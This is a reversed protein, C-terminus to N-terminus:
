GPLVSGGRRVWSALLAFFCSLVSVTALLSRLRRCTACIGATACRDLLQRECRCSYAPQHTYSMNPASQLRADSFQAVGDRRSRPTPKTSGMIIYFTPQNCFCVRRFAIM